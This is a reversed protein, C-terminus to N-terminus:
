EIRYRDYKDPIYGDKHRILEEVKATAAEKSTAVITFDDSAKYNKYFFQVFFVKMRKVDM